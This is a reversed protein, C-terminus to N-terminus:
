GVNEWTGSEAVRDIAEKFRGVEDRLQKALTASHGLQGERGLKELEYCLKFARKASLNGFASKMSHAIEAVAGVDGSAVASDLNTLNQDSDEFLVEILELYLETDNEVRALAEECDFTLVGSLDLVDSDGSDSCTAETM